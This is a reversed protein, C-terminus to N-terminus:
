NKYHYENKSVIKGYADKVFELRNMSDYHYYVTEGRPDTISTVGVLPDYTFTTVLSNAFNAHNRLSALKARLTNEASANTDANSASIIDNYISTPIDTFTANEIKAIPLTENYGWIYVIHTGDEKSVEKFNGNNYYDHYVIVKQYADNVKSTRITDLEYVNTHFSKFTSKVSSLTNGNKSTKVYVPINIKNIGAMQSILSLETSTFEGSPISTGVPYYFESKYDIQQGGEEVFNHSESVQYNQNNYTFTKRSEVIQTGANYYYDKSITQTLKRWVTMVDAKVFYLPSPVGCNTTINYPNPNSPGGHDPSSAIYNAYNDYFQMYGCTGTDFIKLSPAIAVETADVYTNIKEKLIDNSSNYVKQTKLYGRKYDVNQVPHFPYAFAVDSSPFDYATTYEHVTRGNNNEAITVYKYGVYSSQTLRIDTLEERVQYQIATPYPGNGNSSSTAYPFISQTLTVNYEQVKGGLKSDVAGSSRSSIYNPGSISPDNYYYNIKKSPTSTLADNNFKIQQIRVGGTLAAQQAFVQNREYGFTNQEFVFEKNGGTPYHIKKLLGKRISSTSGGNYGWNDKLSGYAPLNGKDNYELEHNLILSGGVESVKTLWLRDTTQYTFNFTKNTQPIPANDKIAISNLVAGFTEPHSTTTSFHVSTGDKFTIVSPKMTAASVNYKAIAVQPKFVSSNYGNNLVNSNFSTLLTNTTRSNSTEYTHIHPSYAFSVLEINNSTEIKSLHWASINTVSSPTGGNM